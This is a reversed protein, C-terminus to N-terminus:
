PQSRFNRYEVDTVSGDTFQFTVYDGEVLLTVNPELEQAFRVLEWFMIRNNPGYEILALLQDAHRM